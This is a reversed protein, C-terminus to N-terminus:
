QVAGDSVWYLEDIARTIAIYKINMEQQRQWKTKAMPHPMPANKGTIIFVRDAELGKARHVSSFLVGKPMILKPGVPYKEGPEPRKCSKNYCRETSEAYTKGCTPCQKGAFVLEMKDTVEKVTLSGEAFAHVCSRKDELAILKAESSHKKKAEARCENEYWTDVCELLHPVDNARMKEVFRILSGGFDRGRVVAKRGDKIFRLAESILPANVRCLVMDGDEAKTAYTEQSVHNVSGDDNDEHAEFGPVIQQAAQVITKGCRYTVTLPLSTLEEQGKGALLKRMRPISDTDAGAFGYIAQNIDGVLVVRKGSKRAFEQKCRPLDQGEDVLLLDAQPIPLRNVVPIWNQDNWDMERSNVVDMSDRLIRPVLEYVRERTGNLEIDYHAVLEDLVEETVSEPSFGYKEDWGALTLKCLGVLQKTASFLEPQRRRVERSDQQLVDGILNDTKFDHV